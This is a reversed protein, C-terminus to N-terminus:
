LQPSRMLIAAEPRHQEGIGPGPTLSEEVIRVPGVTREAIPARGVRCPGRVLDRVARRHGQPVDLLPLEHDFATRRDGPLSDVWL